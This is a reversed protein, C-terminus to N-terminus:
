LPEGIEGINLTIRGDITTLIGGPAEHLGAKTYTYCRRTEPDIIWVDPVGLGAYDEARKVVRNLRDEPSLIEICLLPPSTIIQERTSAEVLTIDPVRFRTASIRVRQEPLVQIGLQKRHQLFHGVILGQMLSHDREGLNREELVGDVYDCDPQYVSSLYEEVSVLAATKM